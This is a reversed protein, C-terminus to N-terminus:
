CSFDERFHTDDNLHAELAHAQGIVIQTANALRLSLTVDRTLTGPVALQTIRQSGHQLFAEKIRGFTHSSDSHLVAHSFDLTVSTLWGREGADNCAAAAALRVRVLAGERVVDRLESDPFELTYPM